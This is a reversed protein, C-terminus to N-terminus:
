MAALYGGDVPVAAGTVFNSATSALFLATGSVDAPEGWRAAPTRALIHEHLGPVERRAKHTLSTNIWGPLIANVQINDAAWAVALSKTLQVMGGKSSSYPALHAGGLISIISAVNIIKGGGRQKMAPYVAQACIFASTLNTDMVMHWEALTYAEPRRRINTGANNILIDVRGLWRCASDVLRAGSRHDLLDVALSRVRGGAAAIERVAAENKEAARGGVLIAAGAGALEKAIALGIGGNGGTVIAVRGTLDFQGLTSPSSDL